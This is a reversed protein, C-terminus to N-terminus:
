DATAQAEGIPVATTVAVAATLLALKRSVRLACEEENDARASPM